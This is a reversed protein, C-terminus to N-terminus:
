SRYYVLIYVAIVAVPVAFTPRVIYMWSLLTALLIPRLRIRGTAAGMLMLLVVGLLFLGWTDTWLSRSATSWVQTGLAGGIAVILSSLKPLALRALFYFIAALGAM